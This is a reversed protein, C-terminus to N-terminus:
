HKQPRYFRGLGPISGSDGATAPPNKDLAGDLFDWTLRMIPLMYITRKHICEIVTDKSQLM